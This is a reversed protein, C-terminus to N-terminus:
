VNVGYRAIYAKFVGILENFDIELTNSPITIPSGCIKL